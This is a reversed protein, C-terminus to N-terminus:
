HPDADDSYRVLQFSAGAREFWMWTGFQGIEDDVAWRRSAEVWLESQAPFQEDFSRSPDPHCVGHGYLDSPAAIAVERYRCPATASACGERNDLTRMAIPFRVHARVFADDRTSIATCLQRVFEHLEDRESHVVSADIPAPVPKIPADAPSSSSCAALALLWHRV